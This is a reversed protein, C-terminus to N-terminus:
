FNHWVSKKLTTFGELTRRCKLLCKEHALFNLVEPVLLRFIALLNGSNFKSFWNSIVNHVQKKHEKTLYYSSGTDNSASIRKSTVSNTIRALDEFLQCLERFLITDTNMHYFTVLYM